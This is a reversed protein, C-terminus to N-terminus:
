DPPLNVLVVNDEIKVPYTMLEQLAPGRLVTGTRIDFQSGHWPCTLCYSDLRGENLPGSVHTCNNTFAYITDQIKLLCLPEGDVEVAFLEGEKLEDLNAAKFFNSTESM